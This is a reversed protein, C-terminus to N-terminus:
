RKKKGVARSSGEQADCIARLFGKPRSLITSTRAGRSKDRNRSRRILVRHSGHELRGEAQRRAYKKWKAKEEAAATRLSVGRLEDNGGAFM